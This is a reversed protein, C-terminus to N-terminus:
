MQKVLQKRSLCIQDDVQWIPVRASTRFYNMADQTKREKTGPVFSSGLRNRVSISRSWVEYCDPREIMPESLRHARGPRLNDTDKWPNQM